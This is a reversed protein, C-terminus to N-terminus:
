HYQSEGTRREKGVRREESRFKGSDGGWSKPDEKITNFEWAKDGTAAKLAHIKGQIPLEGATQGIIVKDKVVLPAGTFNCSCKKTELVPTIWAEKGTKMDLAIVRGDLTGFYINGQGAAVGRNYPQFFLTSVVPDLKTFYHWIEKGTAGDLAFVRNNSAIYYMVGDIVIPTSELGQAIAGAQHVWAVTLDKVNGKNIQALPSYRFADYSRHYMPWNNPDDSSLRSAGMLQAHAAWPLLLAGALLLAALTTPRSMKTRMNNRRGPSSFRSGNVHM